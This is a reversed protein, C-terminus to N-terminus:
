KGSAAGTDPPHDRGSWLALRQCLSKGCGSCRAREEVGGSIESGILGLTHQIPYHPGTPPPQDGLIIFIRVYKSRGSVGWQAKKHTADEATAGCSCDDSRPLRRWVAPLDCLEESFFEPPSPDYDYRAHRAPDIARRM